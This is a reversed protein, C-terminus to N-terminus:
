PVACYDQGKQLVIECLHPFPSGCTKTLWKKATKSFTACQSGGKPSSWYTYDVDTGKHWTWSEGKQLGIWVGSGQRKMVTEAVANEEASHINFLRGGNAVCSSKADSNSMRTQDLNFCKAAPKYFTWGMPCDLRRFIVYSVGIQTTLGAVKDDFWTNNQYCLKLISDYFVSACTRNYYCTNVCHAASFSAEPHLDTPLLNHFLTMVSLATEM